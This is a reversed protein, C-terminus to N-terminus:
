NQREEPDQIDIESPFPESDKAHGNGAADAPAPTALSVVEGGPIVVEHAATLGVTAVPQLRGAPAEFECHIGIDLVVRAARMSQSDLM